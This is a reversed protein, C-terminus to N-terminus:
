MIFIAKLLSHLLMNLWFSTGLNKNEELINKMLADLKEDTILSYKQRVRIGNNYLNNWITKENWGTLLSVKRASFNLDLYCNYFAM